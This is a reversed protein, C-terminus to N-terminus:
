VAYVNLMFHSSGAIDGEWLTLYLYVHIQIAGQWSWVELARLYPVVRKWNKKTIYEDKNVM